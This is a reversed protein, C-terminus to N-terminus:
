PQCHFFHPSNPFYLSGFCTPNIIFPPHCSALSFLSWSIFPLIMWQSRSALTKVGELTPCHASCSVSPFAPKALREVRAEMEVITPHAVPGPGNHWGFTISDPSFDQLMDLPCYTRVINLGNRAKCISCIISNPPM